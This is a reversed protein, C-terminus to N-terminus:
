KALEELLSDALIVAMKAIQEDKIDFTAMGQMALGAFYERKNLGLPENMGSWYTIPENSLQKAKETM